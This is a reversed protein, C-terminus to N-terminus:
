WRTRDAAPLTRGPQARHKGGRNGRGGTGGTARTGGHGRRRSGPRMGAREEVDKGTVALFGVFGIILVTLVASISGFGLALGGYSHPFAMWDAFSAGLPRTVVYAFWFALIPNMGLKWHAIAPIAFIVAFLIGSSFFGLKLTRATMDGAATGLAFTALVTAWYFTERRPTYISHISLTRENANWTLFIAALVISFAATSLVYPVGFVIHTVDAAMTGFVSVMVVALWYVWTMYRRVSFQLAMAFAFGIGGVAVALYPNYSHVMFDSTTEGM